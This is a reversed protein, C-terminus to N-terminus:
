CESSRADHYMRTIFGVQHVLKQFKNESSFEVHKSSNRQGDDPTQCQVYLLLHIDYMVQM